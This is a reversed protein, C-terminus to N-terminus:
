ALTMKSNRTQYGLMVRRDSFYSRRPLLPREKFGRAKRPDFQETATAEHNVLQSSVVVPATANLM